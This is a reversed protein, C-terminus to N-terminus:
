LQTIKDILKAIQESQQRNTESLTKNTESLMAITDLLKQLDTNDNKTAGNGIIDGGAQNHHMDGSQESILMPPIGNKLFEDSIEPFIKRIKRSMNDTIKKAQGKKIDSIANTNVGIKKVFQTANLGTYYLIEDIIQSPSLRKQNKDKQNEIM